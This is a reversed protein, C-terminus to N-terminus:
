LVMPDRNRKAAEADFYENILRDLEDLQRLIDLYYDLKEQFSLKMKRKPFIQKTLQRHMSAAKSKSKRM